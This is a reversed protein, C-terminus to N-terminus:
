ISIGLISVLQPGLANGGCWGCDAHQNSMVVSPQALQACFMSIIGTGCGLDMVVKNRLSASNSQIVRRYAETRSKDSLMELHLRQM